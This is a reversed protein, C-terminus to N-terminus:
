KSFNLKARKTREPSYQNTHNMSLAMKVASSGPTGYENYQVYANYSCSFDAEEAAHNADQRFGAHKQCFRAKPIFAVTSLIYTDYFLVIIRSYNSYKFILKIGTPSMNKVVYLSFIKVFV